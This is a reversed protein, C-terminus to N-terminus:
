GSLVKAKAFGKGMVMIRGDSTWVKKLRYDDRM